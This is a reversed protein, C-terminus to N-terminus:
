KNKENRWWIGLYLLLLISYSTSFVLMRIIKMNVSILSVFYLGVCCFLIALLLNSIIKIFNLKLYNFHYYVILLMFNVFSAIATALALGKHQMPGVLLYDLFVNVLIAIVSFLLPIKTNKFSYFARGIIHVGTYFLLGISYFYLTESTIILGTFKGRNLTIDIIERSFFTLLVICPMIVAILFILATEIIKKVNNWNKNEVSKSMKPFFVTAISMGFVGLPLNYLRTSNELASITGQPLKTAFYMDVVVNFQRAFIGILMPLLLILIKHMYKDKFDIKFKYSKIVKIFTPLLILLQGIGGVVVGYALCYIGYKENFFIASLIISINFLVPMFAPLFFRKNNNLIAGIMGALGIFISYVAMVKLLNISLNQTNVAAKGAIFVVVQKAFVILFLTIFFLFLFLTNLTSYILKKGEEEGELIVRENYVPIFVSGLAGEGLMQRFINTIKFSLFYADTAVGSGFIRAILLTRIFGLLRSILTAFMVLFSSKFM